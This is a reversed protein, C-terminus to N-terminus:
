HHIVILKTCQQQFDIGVAAAPLLLTTIRPHQIRRNLEVGTWVEGVIIMGSYSYWMSDYRQMVTDPLAAILPPM